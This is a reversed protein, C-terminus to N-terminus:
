PMRHRAQHPCLPRFLRSLNANTYCTLSEIIRGNLGLVRVDAGNRGTRRIRILPNTRHDSPQIPVNNKHRM